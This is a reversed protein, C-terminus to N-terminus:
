YMIYISIMINFQFGSFLCSGEVKLVGLTGPPYHTDIWPKEPYKNPKHQKMPFGIGVRGEHKDHDVYWAASRWSIQMNPDSEPVYGKDSCDTAPTIGMILSNKVLCTHKYYQFARTDPGIFLQHLGVKTEAIISDKIQINCTTQIYAGFHSARYINFGSLLSCKESACPDESVILLGNMTAHATNSHWRDTSLSLLDTLPM